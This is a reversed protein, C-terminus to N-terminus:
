DAYRRHLLPANGDPDDAGSPSPIGLTEAYLTRARALDTVPVSVSMAREVGIM